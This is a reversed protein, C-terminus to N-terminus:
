IYEVAQSIKAKIILFSRWYVSLIIQPEIEVCDYFLVFM